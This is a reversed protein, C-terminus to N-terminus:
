KLIESFIGDTCICRECHELTRRSLCASRCYRRRDRPGKSDRTPELINKNLCYCCYSEINSLLPNSFSFCILCISIIFREKFFLSKWHWSWIRAPCSGHSSRGDTTLYWSGTLPRAHIVDAFYLCVNLLKLKTFIQWIIKTDNIVPRLPYGPPHSSWPLPPASRGSGTWTLFYMPFM